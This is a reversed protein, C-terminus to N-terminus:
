LRQTSSISSTSFSSESNPSNLSPGGNNSLGNLYTSTTSGTNPTYSGTVTTGTGSIVYIGSGTNGTSGSSVNGFGSLNISNSSSSITSSASTVLIALHVIRQAVSGSSDTATIRLIYNGSQTNNGIIIRDGDLYTGQPLGEVSYTVSGISGDCVM